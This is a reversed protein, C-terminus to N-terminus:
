DCSWPQLERLTQIPLTGEAILGTAADHIRYGLTRGAFPQAEVFICRLEGPEFGCQAQVSRLLQEAHLHGDGFNWGLVMGAVLEGDLWEYDELREVARPVLLQLARGHLHMLRFGIVKGVLAVVWETIGLNGPTINVMRVPSTLAYLLGGALFDASLGSLSQSLLGFTVFNLLHRMLCLAFVRTAM